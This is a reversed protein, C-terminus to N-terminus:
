VNLFNRMITEGHETMFSEPHFQVGYVPLSEHEFGMLSGDKSWATKLFGHPVMDVVLSHYRAGTFPDPVGAFLGDATHFIEDTKGHMIRPAPVTHAGFVEGICQMGLCVGLIPLSGNLEKIAALSVGSDEPRKPGPSIVIHSLVLKKIDRVIIQDHKVVKVLHGLAAIQQYLNYTFSDYNDIILVEPWVVEPAYTELIDAYALRAPGVLARVNVETEGADNKATKITERIFDVGAEKFAKGMSQGGAIEQHIAPFAKRGEALFRVKSEELVQGSSKLKTRIVRQTDSQSVVELETPGFQRELIESSLLAM